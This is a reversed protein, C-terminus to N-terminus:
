QRLIRTFYKETDTAIEIFYLGPEFQRLDISSMETKFITKGLIDKITALKFQTSNDSKIFIFDSSPNPFVRVPSNIGLEKIGTGLCTFDFNDIMWGDKNTNTNDSTFTFRFRVFNLAYGYITSKKWGSKGTFGPKNANSSITNAGSYFNTLTFQSASIINTWNSGGDTSIEVVGGDALSDTNLRHWFSIFTADDSQVVFEFSSINGNAYTNVTDTVFALSPSYASNFVSKSPSGIQWLNNTQNTNIYFYNAADRDEFNSFPQPFTYAISYITDQANTKTLTFTSLLIFLYKKM